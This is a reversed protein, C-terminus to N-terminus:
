QFPQPSVGSRPSFNCPLHVKLSLQKEYLLSIHLVQITSEFHQSLGHAILVDTGKTAHLFYLGHFTDQLLIVIHNGGGVGVELIALIPVM